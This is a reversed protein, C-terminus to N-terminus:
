DNEMVKQPYIIRQCIPCMQISDLRQLEIFMQPPLNMRCGQCVANVVPAVAIGHSNAMVRDFLTQQPAELKAWVTERQQRAQALQERQHASQKSIDSQQQEIEQRRDDLRAQDEKLDGEMTEIRELNEIMRDEITACKKKLEDIEKLTSQYEKNTKVARLKEQSKAIMEQVLQVEGEDDRYQTKLEALQRESQDAVAVYEELQDGLAKIQQDVGALQDELDHIASDAKQLDVLTSLQSKVTPNM